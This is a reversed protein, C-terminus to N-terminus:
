RRKKGEDILDGWKPAFFLQDEMGAIRFNEPIKWAFPDQFAYPDLTLARPGSIVEPGSVLSVRADISLIDAQSEKGNEFQVKPGSAPVAKAMPTAGSKQRRECGAGGMLLSM